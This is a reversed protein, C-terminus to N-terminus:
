RFSYGCVCLYVLVILDIYIYICVYIYYISVTYMYIYICTYIYLICKHLPSNISLLSIPVRYQPICGSLNNSSCAWSPMSELLWSISSMYSISSTSSIFRIVNVYPYTVTFFCWIDWSQQHCEMHWDYTTERTFWLWDRDFEFKIVMLRLRQWLGKGMFIHNICNWGRTLGKGKGVINKKVMPFISSCFVSSLQPNLHGM